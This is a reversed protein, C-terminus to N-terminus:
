DLTVKSATPLGIPMPNNLMVSPYLSNVDYYFLKTLQKSIPGKRNHPIYVDVAGGSYSERIAQEVEGGLQYISNAPM